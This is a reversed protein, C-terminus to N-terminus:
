RAPENGGPDNTMVAHAARHGRRLGAPTTVGGPVRRQQAKLHEKVAELAHTVDSRTARGHLSDCLMGALGPM